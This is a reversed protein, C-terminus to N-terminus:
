KLLLLKKESLQKVAETLDLISCELLNAIELLTHHGDSYNLIYLIKKLLDGKQEKNGISPYLGRKGLQPECFPSLNEYTGDLEYAKVLKFYMDVTDEMAEFSVFDKNDLSTHYEEYKGYMTRMLSGVPLNIGPSCYQREDSGIPTFPVISHNDKAYHSLIHETMKNTYAKKDRSMKYTFPADDGVCTIVYGAIVDEKLQQYHKSLYTITGITEPTLIFRYTYRRSKLSKVKNYLFSLVLPGSLENSALSPHCTYSSFIIEKKEKGKLVADAYTLHGNELQSDIVVEYHGTTPLSELTNHKLCFGWRENYYSTIYPIVDPQDPLSYLHPKLEEFSLTKRVPISYGLLHLNNDKFDAIKRGDPALIYADQVNWEKPITWDFVKAGSPEEYLNLDIISKMLDLSKRVGDGTLSRNIPWLKDFLIEIQDKM